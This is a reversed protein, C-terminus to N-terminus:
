PTKKDRWTDRDDKMEKWWERWNPVSNITPEHCVAQMSKVITMQLTEWRKIAAEGPASADKATNWPYEAELRKMLEEAVAKRDRGKAVGYNALTQYAAEAIKTERNKCQDIISDLYRKDAVKGIALLAQIQLSMEDPDEVDDQFAIRKLLKPGYRSRLEGITDIIKRQTGWNGRCEKYSSFLEKTLADVAKKDKSTKAVKMIPDLLTAIRTADEAKNAAELDKLLKAPDPEEQAFALGALIALITPVHKM